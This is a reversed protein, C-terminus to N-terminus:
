SGEEEGCFGGRIQSFGVRGNPVRWITPQSPSDHYPAEAARMGQRLHPITSLYIFTWAGGEWGAPREGRAGGEAQRVIGTNQTNKLEAAAMIRIRIRRRSCYRRTVLIVARM